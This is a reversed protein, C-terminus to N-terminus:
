VAPAVDSMKLTEETHSELAEPQAALIRRVLRLQELGEKREELLVREVEVGCEAREGEESGAGVRAKYRAEDHGAPGGLPKVGSRGRCRPRLPERPVRCAHLALVGFPSVLGIHAGCARLRHASRVWPEHQALPHELLHYLAHLLIDRTPFTDKRLHHM